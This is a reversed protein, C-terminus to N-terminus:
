TAMFQFTARAAHSAGSALVRVVAQWRGAALVGQAEYTGPVRPGIPSLPIALAAMQMDPMTLVMGVTAGQLPAGTADWVAVTFTYTGFQDPAARFVITDGSATQTQAVTGSSQDFPIAGGTAGAAAQNRGGFGDVLQHSIITAGIVLAAGAGAILWSILRRNM